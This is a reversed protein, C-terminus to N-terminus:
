EDLDYAPNHWWYIFQSENVYPTNKGSGPQGEIVSIAKGLVAIRPKDYKM